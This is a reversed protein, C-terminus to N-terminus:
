RSLLRSLLYGAALACGLAAIPHERVYGRTVEMWEDRSALLDDSRATLRNAASAAASAVRDVTQHATSTLRDIGAQTRDALAEGARYESSQPSTPTTTQPM